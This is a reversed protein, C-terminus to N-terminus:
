QSDNGRVSVGVGAASTQRSIWVLCARVELTVLWGPAGPVSFNGLIYSWESLFVLLHQAFWSSSTVRAVEGAEPVERPM